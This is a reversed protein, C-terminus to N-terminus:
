LDILPKLPYVVTGCTLCLDRDPKGLTLMRITDAHPCRAQREKLARLKVEVELADFAELLPDPIQM